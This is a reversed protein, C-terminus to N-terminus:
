LGRKGETIKYNIHTVKNLVWGMFKTDLARLYEIKEDLDHKIPINAEFIAIVNDSVEIWEKSENLTDLSSTEIIIIDFYNTLAHLKQKIWSENNIEFLTTDAGHNGLIRMKDDNGAQEVLIADALYDEIFDRAGSIRTIEPNIFNGDILIVKKGIMHYASALSLSFLTKGAGNSLSTVAIIHANKLSMHVEFRTSRLLNRFEKDVENISDKDWLKQIELFSSKIVPFFGLVKMDTARELDAATKITNDLYFLVFLIILYVICVILGSAVVLIIKKSPQPDGPAGAEIQKVRIASNYELSVQNYKKLIEVYEQSAINIEGELSQMVAETPVM